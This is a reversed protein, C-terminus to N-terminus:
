EDNCQNFFPLGPSTWCTRDASYVTRCDKAVQCYSKGWNHRMRQLTVIPPLLAEMSGAKPINGQYPLASPHRRSSPEDADLHFRPSDVKRYQEEPRGAEPNPFAEGPQAFRVLRVWPTM